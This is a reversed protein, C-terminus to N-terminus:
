GRRAEMRLERVNMTSKAAVVWFLSAAMEACTMFTERPVHRDGWYGSDVSGPKVNTIRIDIGDRRWLDSQQRLGDTYGELAFKSACYLPATPNGRTGAVSSIMIVHGKKARKMHTLARKTMHFVGNFNTEMVTRMIDVDAEALDPTPIGVGANNILVDLRGFSEITQDVCAHCASEDRVDFPITLPREAGTATIEDALADLQEGRRATLALKAGFEAFLLAAARGIGNSAGTIIITKEALDELGLKEMAKM